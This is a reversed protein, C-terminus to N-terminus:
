FVFDTPDLQNVTVDTLRLTDSGNQILVDGDDVSLHNALFDAFSDVGTWASIDVKDMGNQFDEIVDSGFGTSFVFTDGGDGGELIDNGLGGSLKDAGNMGLLTNHGSNGILTNADSNGTGHISRTGLLELYEFNAKLVYSVTSQVTDVGGLFLERIDTDQSSVKYVDSGQGGYAIGDLAGKMLDLMDQGEGMDITGIIKGMNIVTSDGAGDKVAYNTGKLLGHNTLLGDTGNSFEAAINTSIVKGSQFNTLEVSTGDNGAGAMGSASAKIVGSNRAESDEGAYSFTLIGGYGEIRGNNIMLSSASGHLGYFAGTEIFGNNIGTVDRVGSGLGGSAESADIHAHRGFVVKTGEGDAYVGSATTGTVTIDGLVRITSGAHGGGIIGSKDAVNIKADEAVIWTDNDTKIKWSKNLDKDLIHKTM